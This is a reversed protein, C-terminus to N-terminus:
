AQKKFPRAGRIYVARFAAEFKSQQQKLENKEEALSIGYAIPQQQSVPLVVSCHL